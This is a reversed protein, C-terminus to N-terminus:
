KRSAYTFESVREPDLHEDAFPAYARNGCAPCPREVPTAGPAITM